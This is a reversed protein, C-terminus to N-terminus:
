LVSKSTPNCYQLRLKFIQNSQNNQIGHEKMCKEVGNKIPVKVDDPKMVDM